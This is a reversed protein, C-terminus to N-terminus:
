DDGLHQPPPFRYTPHDLGGLIRDLDLGDGGAVVPTEAARRKNEVRKVVRNLYWQAKQLDEEYNGKLPARALYKIAQGVSWGDAASYTNVIQEIIDIIEVPGATYHSPHNVNDSLNQGRRKIQM